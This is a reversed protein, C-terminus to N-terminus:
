GEPEEFHAEIDRHGELMNVVQLVDDQYRFFVVYGKFPSSRLDPWLEPRPRGLTGPLFALKLCHARLQDTFGQAVAVSGSERAIYSFISLLDRRAASPYVLRRV